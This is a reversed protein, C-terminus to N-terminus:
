SEFDAVADDGHQEHGGERPDDTRRKQDQQDDPQRYREGVAAAAESKPKEHETHAGSVIVSAANREGIPIPRLRAHVLPDGRVFAPEPEALWRGIRAVLDGAAPM